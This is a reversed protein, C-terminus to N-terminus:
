VIEEINGTFFFMNQLLSCQWFRKTKFADREGHSGGDAAVLNGSKIHFSNM